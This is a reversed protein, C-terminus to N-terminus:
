APMRRLLGERMLRAYDEPRDVDWFTGLEKLSVGAAALRSRTEAMVGPAGWQMADFLGPVPRALGILVYGGDEAPAVVADHRSLADIAAGLDTPALAPCDAGIIVLTAGEGFASEFADRMRAGLDAGRQARLRVPFEGACRAFFPDREDPACWLEVVAAHAAVATALARRVLEAHLSAAAGAGLTAALRTKVAGAVPAKAFVAIRAEPRRESSTM